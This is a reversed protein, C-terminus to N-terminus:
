ADVENLTRIEDLTQAIRLAGDVLRNFNGLNVPKHMFLDACGAVETTFDDPIHGSIIAIIAHPCMNRIPSLIELGSAGPMRIDLTILDYLQGIVKGLADEGSSATDVVEVGKARAAESFFELVTPEDDVILMRM